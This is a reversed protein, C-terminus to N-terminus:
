PNEKRPRRKAGKRVPENHSLRVPERLIDPVRIRIEKRETLTEFMDLTVMGYHEDYYWLAPAEM